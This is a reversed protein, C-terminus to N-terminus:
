EIGSDWLDIQPLGAIGLTQSLEGCHYIDHSFVRQIVPSRTHVWDDGFDPRRFEEALSVVTWRSPRLALRQETMAAIVDRLRQHYQPWMGYASRM